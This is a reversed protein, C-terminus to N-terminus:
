NKSTSIVSKLITLEVRMLLDIISLNIYSKFEPLRDGLIALADQRQLQIHNVSFLKDDQYKDSGKGCIYHTGNLHKVIHFNYDNGKGYVSLDSSIVLEKKIDLYSMIRKIFHINVESLLRFERSENYWTEIHNFVSSFQQMLRYEEYIKVLHKSTWNKEWDIELDKILTFDSHKKLPVTLWQSQYMGNKNSAIKARRTPGRKSIEVHDHFVFTDSDNMKLFYGAWPLFNPQHIAIYNTLKDEM